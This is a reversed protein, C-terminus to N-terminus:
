YRNPKNEKPWPLSTYSLKLSTGPKTFLYNMTFIETERKMRNFDFIFVYPILIHWAMPPKGVIVGMAVARAFSGEYAVIIGHKKQTDEVGIKAKAGIIVNLLKYRLQKTSESTINM